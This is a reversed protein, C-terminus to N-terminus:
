KQKMAAAIAKEALPEMVRYGALNPHIGDGSLSEPLGNRDDKMATFYDLYVVNNKTAYDKLMQNLKIVKEAPQM